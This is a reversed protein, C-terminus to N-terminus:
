KIHVFCNLRHEPRAAKKNKYMDISLRNRFAPFPLGVNDYCQELLDTIRQRDSPVTLTLRLAELELLPEAYCKAVRVIRCGHEDTTYSKMADYIAPVVCGLEFATVGAANPIGLDAGAYLLTEFIGVNKHIAAVHAPTNGTRHHTSNIANQRCSLCCLRPSTLLAEARHVSEVTSEKALMFLLQSPTPM